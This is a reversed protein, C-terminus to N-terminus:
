LCVEVFFLYFTHFFDNIVWYFLYNLTLVSSDESIFARDYKEKDSMRELAEREFADISFTLAYINGKEM